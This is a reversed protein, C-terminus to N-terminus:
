DPLRGGEPMAQPALKDAPTAQCLGACLVVALTLIGIHTRM